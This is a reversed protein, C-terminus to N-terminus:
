GLGGAWVIESSQLMKARGKSRKVPKSGLWLEQNIASGLSRAFPVVSKLSGWPLAQGLRM